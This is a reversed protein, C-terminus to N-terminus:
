KILIDIKKDDMQWQGAFRGFGDNVLIVTGNINASPQVMLSFEILMQDQKTSFRLDSISVSRVTRGQGQIKPKGGLASLMQGLFQNRASRELNQLDTNSLRGEKWVTAFVIAGGVICSAILIDFTLLVEHWAKSKEKEM